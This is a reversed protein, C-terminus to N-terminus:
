SLVTTSEQVEVEIFKITNNIIQHHLAKGVMIKIDFAMECCIM